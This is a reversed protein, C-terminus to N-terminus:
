NISKHTCVFIQGDELFPVGWNQYWFFFFNIKGFNFLIKKKKQFISLFFFVRFIWYQVVFFRFFFFFFSLFLYFHSHIQRFIGHQIPGIIPRPGLSPPHLLNLFQNLLSAFISLKSNGHRHLYRSSSVNLTQGFEPSKLHGSGTPVARKIIEFQMIMYM